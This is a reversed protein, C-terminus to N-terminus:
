CNKKLFEEVFEPTFVLGESKEADILTQTTVKTNQRYEKCIATKSEESTQATWAETFYKTEEAETLTIPERDTYAACTVSLFVKIDETDNNFTEGFSGQVIETAEAPNKDYQFCAIKQETPSIGAWTRALSDADPPSPSSSPALTPPPLAPPATTSTTPTTQVSATIPGGCAAAFISLFCISTSVAATKVTTKIVM